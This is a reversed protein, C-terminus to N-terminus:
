WGPSIVFGTVREEAPRQFPVAYYFELVAFGGL